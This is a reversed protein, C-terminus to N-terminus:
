LRTGHLRQKSKEFGSDIGDAVTSIVPRWSLHGLGGCTGHRPELTSGIIRVSTNLVTQAEDEIKVESVGVDADLIGLASLQLVLAVFM